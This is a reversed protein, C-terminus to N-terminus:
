RDAVRAITGKGSRKPGELLFIKQQSTDAALAYGAVEQLTDRAEHDDPWLSELFAEWQTADDAEADYDFALANLSFYAPSLPHLRLDDLDLIGNRMAVLRAAPPGEVGDLWAPPSITAPLNTVARLADLTMNVSTATPKFRVLEGTKTQRKAVDLFTYVAARIAQDDLSRYAAAHWGYFDGAWHHLIPVTTSTYRTEVFVRASKMPDAPDLIQAAEGTQVAALKAANATM